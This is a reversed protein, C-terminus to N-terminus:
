SKIFDQIYKKLEEEFKKEDGAKLFAFETLDKKSGSKSNYLFLATGAAQFEEAMKANKKDDVNVLTFTMGPFNNALTARTLKEIKLCTMCRHESHFQIVGITFPLMQKNQQANIRSVSFVLVLFAPIIINLNKM